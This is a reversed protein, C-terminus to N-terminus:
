EGAVTVGAEALHAEERDAAEQLVGRGDQGEGVWGGVTVLTQHRTVFRRDVQGVRLPVARGRAANRHVARARLSLADLEAARVWARIRIERKGGAHHSRQIADLVLDM